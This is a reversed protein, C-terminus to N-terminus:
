QALLSTASFKVPLPCRFVIAVKGDLLVTKAPNELRQFARVQFGAYNPLSLLACFAFDVSVNPRPAPRLVGFGFRAQSWV